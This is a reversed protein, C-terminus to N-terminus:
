ILVETDAVHAVVEKDSLGALDKRVEGTVLGITNDSFERRLDGLTRPPAVLVFRDFQTTALTKEVTATVRRAFAVQATRHASNQSSMAHRGQGMRDFARGPRDSNIESDRKMAKRSNMRLLVTDRRPTHAILRAHAGDAILILTPPKKM